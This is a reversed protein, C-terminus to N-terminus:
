KYKMWHRFRRLLRLWGRPEDVPRPKRGSIVRSEILIEVLLELDLGNRSKGVSASIESARARAREILDDM